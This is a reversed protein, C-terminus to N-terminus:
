RASAGELSEVVVDYGSAEIADVLEVGGSGVIRGDRFVHVHDPTIVDLLRRYHTIILVGLGNAILANVHASIVEVADVDLGSDIEDLIAIRANSLQLQVTEVRKMEGGSFEVNLGRTAFTGDLDVAKLATVISEESTGRGGALLAHELIVGPVAVPYQFTAFMGARAREFTPLELLSQGDLSAEGGTVVYGPRGMLVHTLTSKGSGNPGMLAHVSGPQIELNVGTLIPLLGEETEVSAALESVVLGNGNM